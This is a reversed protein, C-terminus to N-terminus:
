PSQQLSLKKAVTPVVIEDYPVHRTFHDGSTELPKDIFLNEKMGLEKRLKDAHIKLGLIDSTRYEPRDIAFVTPHFSLPALPKQTDEYMM